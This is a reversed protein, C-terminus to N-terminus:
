PPEWHRVSPEPKVKALPLYGVLGPVRVKVTYTVPVSPTSYPEPGKEM